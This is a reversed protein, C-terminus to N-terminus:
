RSSQKQQMMRVALAPSLSAQKEQVAPAKEAAEANTDRIETSSDIVLGWDDDKEATNGQNKMDSEDAELVLGNYTKAAADKLSAREDALFNGSLDLVKIHKKPTYYTSKEEDFGAKKYTQQQNKQMFEAAYEINVVPYNLPTDGIFLGIYYDAEAKNQETANPNNYRAIESDIVAPMKDNATVDKEMYKSFDIGGINYIAKVAKDYNGTDKANHGYIRAMNYAHPLSQKKYLDAYNNEWMKQTENMIFSMEKDFGQKDTANPNIEGNEVADVYFQFNKPYEDGFNGKERYQNRMELIMAMNASIEDHMNLKYAQEITTAASNVAALNNIHHKEEHAITYKTDKDNTVGNFWKNAKKIDKLEPQKINNQSFFEQNERRKYIFNQSLASMTDYLTITKASLDYGGLTVSYPNEAQKKYSLIKAKQYCATKYKENKQKKATDSQERLKKHLDSM